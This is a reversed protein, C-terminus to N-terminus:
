WSGGQEWRYRLLLAQVSDGKRWEAREMRRRWRLLLVCGLVGRRHIRCRNATSGRTRGGREVSGWPIGSTSRSLPLWECLTYGRCRFTRGYIPGWGRSIRSIYGSCKSSASCSSYTAVTESATSFSEAWGVDSVLLDVAGEIQREEICGGVSTVEVVVLVQARGNVAEGGPFVALRNAFPEVM